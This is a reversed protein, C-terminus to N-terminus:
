FVEQSREKTVDGLANAGYWKELWTGPVTLEYTCTFEGTAPNAIATGSGFTYVVPVSVPPTGVPPPTITCTVTTPNFPLRNADLFTAKAVQTTPAFTPM